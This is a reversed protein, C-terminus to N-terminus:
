DPWGGREWRGSLSQKQLAVEDGGSGAAGRSGAESQSVCGRASSTGIERGEEFAAPTRAGRRCIEM